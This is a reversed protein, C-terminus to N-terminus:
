VHGVVFRILFPASLIVALILWSAWHGFNLTRGFGFRKKVLLAPDNPNVYFLGAVWHSNDERGTVSPTAPEPFEERRRRAITSVTLIVLLLVIFPFFMLAVSHAPAHPLISMACFLLM